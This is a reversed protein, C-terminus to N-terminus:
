TNVTYYTLQHLVLANFWGTGFCLLVTKCHFGTTDLCIGNNGIEKLEREGLVVFVM